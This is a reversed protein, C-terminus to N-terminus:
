ECSYRAGAPATFAGGSIRVNFWCVRPEAPKDRNFTLPYTLGGLDDNRIKWLGDLVAASTPPEPMAAAAKEFVKAAVWGVTHSGTPAVGKQFQAM